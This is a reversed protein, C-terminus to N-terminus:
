IISLPDLLHNRKHTLEAPLDVLLVVVLELGRIAARGHDRRTSGTAVISHPRNPSIETFGPEFQIHAAELPVPPTVHGSYVINSTSVMVPETLLAVCGQRVLIENLASQTEVTGLRALTQCFVAGVVM